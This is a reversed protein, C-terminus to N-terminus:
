ALLLYRVLQVAWGGLLDAQGTKAVLRYDWNHNDLETELEHNLDRDGAIYLSGNENLRIVRVFHAGADGYFKVEDLRRVNSILSIEHKCLSISKLVRHSWYDTHQDYRMKSHKQLVSVDKVESRVLGLEKCIENSVSFVGVVSEGWEKVIASCCADKGHLPKGGFGIILV